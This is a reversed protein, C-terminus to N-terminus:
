GQVYRAIRIKDGIVQQLTSGITGTSGFPFRANIVECSIAGQGAFNLTGTTGPKIRADLAQPSVAYGDFVEVDATIGPLEPASTGGQRLYLSVTVTETAPLINGTDPDTTTGVTAVHFTASANAIGALASTM